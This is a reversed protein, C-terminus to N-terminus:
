AEHYEKNDDSLSSVFNWSVLLKGRYLDLALRITTSKETVSDVAYLVGCVIFMEGVKRHNISMNLSYQTHLNEFELQLLICVCLFLELSTM